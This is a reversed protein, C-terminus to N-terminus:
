KCTNKLKKRGIDLGRRKLEKSIRRSWYYMHETYINDIENMVKLEYETYKHMYYHSSRSVCLLESQRKISLTYSTDIMKVRQIYSSCDTLKKKLWDVEVAYQGIIKHLRQVEQEQQKKM